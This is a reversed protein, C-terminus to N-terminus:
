RHCVNRRGLAEGPHLTAVHRDQQRRTLFIACELNDPFAPRDHGLHLCIASGCLAKSNGAGALDFVLLGVSAMVCPRLIALLLALQALGVDAGIHLAVLNLDQNGIHLTAYLQM